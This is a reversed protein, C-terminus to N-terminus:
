FIAITLTTRTTHTKRPTTWLMLNHLYRHGSVMCKTNYVLVIRAMVTSLVRCVSAELMGTSCYAYSPVGLLPTSPTDLNIQAALSSLARCYHCGVYQSYQCFLCSMFYMYGSRFRDRWDALMRFVQCVRTVFRIWSRYAELARPTVTYIFLMFHGYVTLIWLVDLKGGGGIRRFYNVGVFSQLM